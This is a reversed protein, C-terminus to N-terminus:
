LKLKSRIAMLGSKLTAPLLGVVHLSSEFVIHRSCETSGVEVLSDESPWFILWEGTAPTTHPHHASAYLSVLIGPDVSFTDLWAIHCRLPLKLLFALKEESDWVKLCIKSYLREWCYYGCQYCEKFSGFCAWSTGSIRFFSIAMWAFDNMMKRGKKKLLGQALIASTLLSSHACVDYMTKTSTCTYCQNGSSMTAQSNWQCQTNTYM